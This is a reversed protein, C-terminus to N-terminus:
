STAKHMQEWIRVELKDCAKDLVKTMASMIITSGTLSDEESMHFQFLFSFNIKEM